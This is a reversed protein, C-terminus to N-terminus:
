CSSHYKFGYKGTLAAHKEGKNSKTCIHFNINRIDTNKPRIMIKHWSLIQLSEVPKISVIHLKYHLIRALRFFCSFHIHLKYFRFHYKQLLNNRRAHLQPPIARGVKIQIGKTKM